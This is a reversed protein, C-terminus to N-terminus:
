LHIGLKNADFINKYGKENLTMSVDKANRANMALIIGTEDPIGNFNPLDIIEKEDGAIELRQSTRTQLSWWGLWVLYEVMHM